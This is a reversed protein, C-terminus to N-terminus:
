LRAKCQRPAATPADKIRVTWLTLVDGTAHAPAQSGGLERGPSAVDTVRARPVEWLPEGARAEPETTLCVIM